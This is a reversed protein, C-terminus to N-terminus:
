RAVSNKQIHHVSPSITVAPAVDAAPLRFWFRSGAGLQSDAGIQGGHAEVLQKAIALGLGSGGYDRSRSRDARWFREFVHPLDVAAIGQGTDCIACIVFSSRGLAFAKANASDDTTPRRGDTAEIAATVTITGGAPTYRLANAILNHLVQRVRDSDALIPPLQDPLDAILSVGQEAAAAEFAALASRALPAVELSQM